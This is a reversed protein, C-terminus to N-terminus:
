SMFFVAISGAVNMDVPDLKSIIGSAQGTLEAIYAITRSDASNSKLSNLAKLIADPSVRAKYELSDLTDIPFSLSHNIKGTGDMSIIGYQIAEILTDIQYKLASRKLPMIKKRDLWATVEKEALEFDM